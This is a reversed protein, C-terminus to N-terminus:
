RTSAEPQGAPRGRLGQNWLEITQAIWFWAFLVILSTELTLVWWRFGVVHAVVNAVVALVMLVGVVTYRNRWISRPAVARDARHFTAANLWVTAFIFGFMAVAAFDHGHDLLLTSNWAYVAATAVFLV